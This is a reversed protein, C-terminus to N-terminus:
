WGYAGVLPVFRCLYLSERTIRGARKRLRVCDQQNASGVPIVMRGGEALQAVLPQPVEPAAATVIIADFPAEEVCGLTGDGTLVRVGAYGLRELREAAARALAAHREISVVERALLSLLAAQYGSGTGVELVREGGTLELAETMAAVMFPQSITQGDGIPLPQDEYAYAANIGPVFLHRPVAYMAALVRPDRIGRREIQWRVMERRAEDIEPTAREAAAPKTDSTM